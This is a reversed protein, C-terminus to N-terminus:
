IAGYFLIFCMISTILDRVFVADAMHQPGYENVTSCRANLNDGSVPCWCRASLRLHIACRTIRLQVTRRTWKSKTSISHFTSRILHSNTAEPIEMGFQARVSKAGNSHIFAFSVFFFFVSNSLIMSIGWPHRQSIYIGKKVTLAKCASKMDHGHWRTTRTTTTTLTTTTMTM